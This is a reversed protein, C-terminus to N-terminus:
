CNCDTSIGSITAESALISLQAPTLNLEKLDDWSQFGGMSDRLELIREADEQSFFCRNMLEETTANNLEFPNDSNAYSMPAAALMLALALILFRLKM